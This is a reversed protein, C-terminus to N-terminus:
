MVERAPTATAQRSSGGGVLSAVAMFGLMTSVTRGTDGRFIAGVIGAGLLSGWFGGMMGSLVAYGIGAGAGLAYSQMSSGIGRATPLGVKGVKEMAM